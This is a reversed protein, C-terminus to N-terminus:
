KPEFDIYENMNELKPNKIENSSNFDHSLQNMKIGQTSKREEIM